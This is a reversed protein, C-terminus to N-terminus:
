PVASCSVQLLARGYSVYQLGTFGHGGSFDVDAINVGYLQYLTSVITVGDEGAVSVSVSRGEPAEGHYTVTLKMTPFELTEGGAILGDEREVVLIPEEAGDLTEADPRYQTFCKISAPLPQGTTAVPSSADTPRPPSTAVTGGTEVRNDGNSGWLVVAAGIVATCVVAAAGVLLRRSRHDRSGGRDVERAGSSAAADDFLVPPAVLDVYDRIQRGLESM